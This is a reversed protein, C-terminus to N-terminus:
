FRKNEQYHVGEWIALWLNILGLGSVAGRVFGRMAIARLALHRLLLGNNSWVATWPLILLVMGVELCILIYLILGTRRAWLEWKRAAAERKSETEVAAPNNLTSSLRAAHHQAEPFISAQWNM